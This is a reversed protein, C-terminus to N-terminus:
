QEPTSGKKGARAEALQKRLSAIERRLDLTQMSENILETKLHEKEETEQALAANKEPTSAPRSGLAQTTNFNSYEEAPISGSVKMHVSVQGTRRMYGYGGVALEARSLEIPTKEGGDQIELAAQTASRVVSSERDWRILFAGNIDYTELGLDMPASLRSWKLVATGGVGCLLFIGVLAWIWANNRKKTVSPEALFGPLTTELVPSPDPVKVPPTESLDAPSPAAVVVPRAAPSEAATQGISIPVPAPENAPPPASAAVNALADSITLAAAPTPAPPVPIAPLEIKVTPEPVPPADPSAKPQPAAIGGEFVALGFTPPELKFEQSAQDSKVAGFRDRVFFGGRTPQLNAPRLVMAIQWREPFFESYLQLDTPSLFIESRTHSHYWGLPIMGALDPDANAQDLLGSLGLQDKISLTFSPGTAYECRIPRHARIHLTDAERIGFFVGGIEVGGRPVSYFAEVALIRVENIVPALITIRYPCEPATWLLIQPKDEEL